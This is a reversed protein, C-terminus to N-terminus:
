HPRGDAANEVHDLLDFARETIREARGDSYEDPLSRAAADICAALLVGANTGFTACAHDWVQRSPDPIPKTM